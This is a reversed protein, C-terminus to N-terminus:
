GTDFRAGLVTVMLLFIIGIAGFLLAFFLETRGEAFRGQLRSGIQEVVLWAAVVAGGFVGGKTKRSMGNSQMGDIRTDMGDMRDTGRDFRDLMAPMKVENIENVAQATLLIM